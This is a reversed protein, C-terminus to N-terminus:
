RNEEWATESQGSQGSSKNRCANFSYCLTSVNIREIILDVQNWINSYHFRRSGSVQTMCPKIDTASGSVESLPPPALFMFYLGGHIIAM